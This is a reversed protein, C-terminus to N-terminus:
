PKAEEEAPLSLAPSPMTGVPLCCFARGLATSGFSLSGAAGMWHAAWVGWLWPRRPHKEGLAEKSVQLVEGKGLSHSCRETVKAGPSRRLSGRSEQRQSRSTLEGPGRPGVLAESELQCFAPVHPWDQGQGACACLLRPRGAQPWPM